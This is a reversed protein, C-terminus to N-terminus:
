MQNLLECRMTFCNTNNTKWHPESVTRKAQLNPPPGIMDTRKFYRNIVSNLIM